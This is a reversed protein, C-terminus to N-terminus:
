TADAERRGRPARATAAPVLRRGTLPRRRDRREMGEVIAGACPAECFLIGSEGRLHAIEPDHNGVVIGTGAARLMDLDNGSDGAAFTAHIPIGLEAALWRLARGKGARRPLVDLYRGHSYIVRAELGAADLEAQLAAVEDASLAAFYSLKFPRQEMAGQPVLDSRGALRAMVADRDWGQAIHRTFREERRLMWASAVTYYIESGVSTVLIRPIPAEIERLIALASHLSRGTAIGFLLAPSAELMRHLRALGAEHGALTNDIDSLLLREGALPSEAARLHPGAVLLRMDAVYDAAHRAWDYYDVGREGAAALRDWLAPDGLMRLAAEALAEPKHPDVLTGHGCRELIDNPGGQNTAIVPVGSAAAELFTLGFPENLAVNVFVGRRARALGYIGPVDAEVHRKPLAVRGWLDHRDIRVLLDRMVEANEGELRDIDERTGAYLVLNARKQLEPSNGYAEVLAALNKKRVPRALALLCPKDPERLFRATDHPDADAGGPRARFAALDCGPPNVRIREPRASPYLPLQHEAEDRSSAIVLDAGAIAEEEVLARRRLTEALAPDAELLAPGLANRKVRALSHATFVYPIGYAAKAAAALPGADAYHAHIVDPRRAMTGLRELFAEVLPEHRRWLEEKALYRADGDFLRTLTVDGERETERAYDPGLADDHFGRTVVEQAQVDPLRALADVLELLYRIHGGTDATVGYDIRGLRLCGQLAIHMIHM